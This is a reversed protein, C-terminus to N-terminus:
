FSWNAWPNSTILSAASTYVPTPNSLSSSNTNDILVSSFLVGFSIGRDNQAALLEEAQLDVGFSGTLGSDTNLSVTARSVLCAYVSLSNIGDGGNEIAAVNRFELLYAFVEFGHSGNGSASCSDIRMESEPSLSTDLLFGADGSDAALCHSAEFFTTDFDFGVLQYRFGVSSNLAALSGFLSTSTGESWVGTESGVMACATVVTNTATSRIAPGSAEAIASHSIALVEVLGTGSIGAGSAIGSSEVHSVACSHITTSAASSRIGSDAAELNAVCTQAVTAAADTTVGSFVAIGGGWSRTLTTGIVSCPAYLAIASQPVALSCSRVVCDVVQTGGGVGFLWDAIGSSGNEVFTCGFITSGGKSLLGLASNDCSAVNRVSATTGCVLGSEDNSRATSTAISFGENSNSSSVGISFGNSNDAALSGWVRSGAETMLGEQENSRLISDDVSSGFGLVAGRKNSVSVCGAVRVGPRVSTQALDSSTIGDEGNGAVICGHVKSDEGVRVGFTTNDIAFCDGVDARAGLDVGAANGALTVGEVRVGTSGVGQIAAQTWGRLSGNRITVDTSTPDILIGATGTSEGFLTSGALDITVGSGAVTIGTAASSARLVGEVVYTGPRTATYPLADITFTDFAPALVSVATPAAFPAAVAAPAFGALLLLILASRRGGLNTLNM